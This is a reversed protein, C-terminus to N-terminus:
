ELMATQSRTSNPISIPAHWLDAGQGRRRAYDSAEHSDLPKGLRAREDIGNSPLKGALRSGTFAPDLFKELAQSVSPIGAIGGVIALFGLPAMALRMAPAREAIHHEPGPFGVDTDEEEQTAPNRHEGHALEGRMLQEAESAQEGYFTRFVM